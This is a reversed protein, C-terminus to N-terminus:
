YFSFFLDLSYSRTVRISTKSLMFYAFLAITAILVRYWVMQVANISILAGLIGTFGWVFVTLHLILLNRNESSRKPKDM